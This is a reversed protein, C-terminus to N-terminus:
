SGITCNKLTANRIGSVYEYAGIDPTPKRGYGRYDTTVETVYIGTGICPSSAKLMYDSTLLLNTPSPYSPNYVIAYEFISNTDLGSATQYLALTAYYSNNWNFPGQSASENLLYYYNYDSDVEMLDEIWMCVWYSQTCVVINNKAANNTGGLFDNDTFWIGKVSNDGMIITNNYVKFNSSTVDADIPHEPVAANNSQVTIGQLCNYTINNKILYGGSVGPNHSDGEIGSRCNYVYNKEVVVNDSLWGINIGNHRSTPFEDNCITCNKITYGTDQYDYKDSYIQIGFEGMNTVICNDITIDKSMVQFSIAISDTDGNDFTKTFESDKITVNEMWNGLATSGYANFLNATYTKGDLKCTDITINTRGTTLDICRDGDSNFEINYITTYNRVKNTGVFIPKNGTGYSSITIDNSSNGSVSLNLDETWTDGQNFYITDGAAFSFGNVKTITEWATGDTLGNASNDGGNKVFYNAM